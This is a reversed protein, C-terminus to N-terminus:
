RDIAPSFDDHLIGATILSQEVAQLTGLGYGRYTLPHFLGFAAFSYRESLRLSPESLVM